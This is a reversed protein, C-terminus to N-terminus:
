IWVPATSIKMLIKAKKLPSSQPVSPSDQTYEIACHTM